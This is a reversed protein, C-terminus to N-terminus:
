GHALPAEFERYHDIHGNSRHMFYLRYYVM